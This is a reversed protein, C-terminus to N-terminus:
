KSSGPTGYTLWNYGWKLGEHIGENVGLWLGQFDRVWLRGRPGVFYGTDQLFFDSALTHCSDLGRGRNSVEGWVGVRM